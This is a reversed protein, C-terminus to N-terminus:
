LNGVRGSHIGFIPKDISKALKQYATHKAGLPSAGSTQHSSANQLNVISNVETGPYQNQVISDDRHQLYDRNPPTMETVIRTKPPSESRKKKKAELYKKRKYELLRFNENTKNLTNHERYFAHIIHDQDPDVQDEVSIYEEIFEIFEKMKERFLGDIQITFENRLIEVWEELTKSPSEGNRSNIEDIRKQNRSSAASHLRSGQRSGPMEKVGPLSGDKHRSSTSDITLRIHQGPANRSEEATGVRLSGSTQRRDDGMKSYPQVNNTSTPHQLHKKDSM